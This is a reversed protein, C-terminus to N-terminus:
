AVTAVGPGVPDYPEYPLRFKGMPVEFATFGPPPAEAVRGGGRGALYPTLYRGSIKTPPWWLPRRTSGAPAHEGTGVQFFREGGTFLMGRLVPRFPEPDLDVILRSALHHAVADAQQTALGGQKIPFNTADGAAYVDQLGKVRGHVDVVIFGYDTEGPVGALQPGRLLPLAVVRDVELMRGGRHLAVLGANVDAYTGGIFEIGLRELRDSVDIGAAPGFIELPDAEPTVLYLEAGGLGSSRAVRATMIALEYLPLTWGTLTPAVFAIRRVDRRKLDGILNGMAEASGSTGFTIADAFAAVVRAGVAVVLTGYPLVLGNAGVIRREAPNVALVAALVFETDFDDAFQELPIRLADGFGFPQAVTMPRYVFDPEAAVITIKVGDGVLDRLAMVTELAAVGGGAIVVDGVSASARAEPM